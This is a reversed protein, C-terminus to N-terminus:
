RSSRPAPQRARRERRAEIVLAVNCWILLIPSLRWALALGRSNFDGGLAKGKVAGLLFLGGLPVIWIGLLPAVVSLLWRGTRPMFPQVVAGMILFLGAVAGWKFSLLAMGAVCGTVVALWLIQRPLIRSKYGAPELVFEEATVHGAEASPLLPHAPAGSKTM